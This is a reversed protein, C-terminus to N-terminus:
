KYSRAALHVNEFVLPERHRIPTQGAGAYEWVAVHCFREDDRAAEGEETQYEERFHAGCSEARALADRCMLEGLELFDAVRGAVELSQNLEAGAGPVTVDQWFEERLAPIKRLATELGEATRSMGCLDWMITGLERHFSTV